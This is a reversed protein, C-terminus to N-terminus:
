RIPDVALRALALRAFALRSPALRVSAVNVLTDEPPIVPVGVSGVPQFTIPPYRM